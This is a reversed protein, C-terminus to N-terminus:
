QFVQFTAGYLNELEEELDSVSMREITSNDDNTGIVGWSDSCRNNQDLCCYATWFHSPVNVRNNLYRTGPVVGTVIYVPQLYCGRELYEALSKEVDWWWVSNFYPAQPAANTLTFTARACRQSNALYVPALHGKHYGSRYYDRNLAQRAGRVLIDVSGESAVNPGGNNDDIQPEIYWSTHRRCHKIGEFRYASYVPTKNFTDYFTAYYDVYSHMQCLQRYQQGPFRTPSRENAFFQGCETEFDRVVRASGASLLSLMLVHLLLTMIFRILSSSILNEALTKILKVPLGCKLLTHM